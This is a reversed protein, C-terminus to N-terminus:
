SIGQPLSNLNDEDLVVKVVDYKGTSSLAAAINEGSQLSVERESSTGGTLIVIKEM